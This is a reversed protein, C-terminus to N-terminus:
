YTHEQVLLNSLMKQTKESGFQLAKASIMESITSGAGYKECLCKFGLDSYGAMPALILDNEFNIKNM